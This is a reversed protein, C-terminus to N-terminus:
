LFMMIFTSFVAVVPDGRTEKMLCGARHGRRRKRVGKRLNNHCAAPTCLGEYEQSMRMLDSKETVTAPSYSHTTICNDAM